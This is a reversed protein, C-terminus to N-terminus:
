AMLWWPLCTKRPLLLPKMVFRWFNNVCRDPLFQLHIPNLETLFLCCSCPYCWYIKGRLGVRLYNLYKYTLKKKKKDSLDKIKKTSLVEILLILKKFSVYMSLFCSIFNANYPLDDVFTSSTMEEWGKDSFLNKQNEVTQGHLM